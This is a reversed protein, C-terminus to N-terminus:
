TAASCSQPCVLIQTFIWVTSIFYKRATIPKVLASVNSISSVLVSTPIKWTLSFLPVSFFISSVKLFSYIEYWNFTKRLYRSPLLSLLCGLFNHLYDRVILYNFLRYGLGRLPPPIFLSIIKLYKPVVSLSKSSSDHHFLYAMDRFNKTGKM